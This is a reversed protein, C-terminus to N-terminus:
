ICTFNSNQIVYHGHESWLNPQKTLLCFAFAFEGAPGASARTIMRMSITSGLVGLGGGCDGVVVGIGAREVGAGPGGCTLISNDLALGLGAAM